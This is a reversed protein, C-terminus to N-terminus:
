GFVSCVIGMGPKQSSIRRGFFSVDLSVKVQASHHVKQVERLRSGVNFAMGLMM